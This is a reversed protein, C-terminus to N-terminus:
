DTDSGNPDALPLRARALAVGREYDQGTGDFHEAGVFPNVSSLEDHAYVDTDGDEAPFLMVHLQREALPSERYVWSGAEPDGGRTKVRSFPNRVFGEAWLLRECEAVSMRLRGAYEGDDIERPGARYDLVSGLVRSARRRVPEQWRAEPGVIRRTPLGYTVLLGLAAGLRALLGM